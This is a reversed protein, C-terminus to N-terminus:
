HDALLDTIERMDIEAEGMVFICMLLLQASYNGRNLKTKLNGATQTVGLQKELEESLKDFTFQKREKVSRMYKVLVEAWVPDYLYRHANQTNSSTM